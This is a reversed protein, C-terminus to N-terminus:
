KSTQHALDRAQVAARLGRVMALPKM